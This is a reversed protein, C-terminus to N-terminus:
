PTREAPALRHNLPLIVGGGFLAAHWLELYRHSNASLVAFPEDPRVGLERLAAVQALVRQLHEAYTARYGAAPDVVFARRPHEDVQALLHHPFTLEATV